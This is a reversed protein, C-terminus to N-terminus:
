KKVVKWYSSKGNVNKYFLFYNGSPGAVNVNKFNRPQDIDFQQIVEGLGNVLTYNGLPLGVNRSRITFGNEIPNPVINVEDEVQDQNYLARDYIKIYRYVIRDGDGSSLGSISDIDSTLVLNELRIEMFEEDKPLAYRKVIFEDYAMDNLYEIFGPFGVAIASALNSRTGYQNYNIDSVQRMAEFELVPEIFGETEVCLNIESLYETNVRFFTGLRKSNTDIRIQQNQDFIGKGRVVFGPEDNVQEVRHSNYLGKGLSILSSDITMESNFDEVYFSQINKVRYFDIEMSNDYSTPDLAYEFSIQARNQGYPLDVFHFEGLFVFAGPYVTRIPNVFQTSTDGNMIITMLFSDQSSIPTCGKYQGAFFISTSDRRNCTPRADNSPFIEVDFNLNDLWTTRVEATNNDITVDWNSSMEVSLPHNGAVNESIGQDFRYVVKDGPLLDEILFYDEQVQPRGDYTYTLEVQTGQPVISDLSLNIIDVEPHLLLDDCFTLNFNGVKIGLDHEKLPHGLGVAYWAEAVARIKEDDDKFNKYAIKMTADRADIYQSTPTLYQTLMEYVLAIANDMGISVVDFDENNETRGQGGEVLLYFWYNLVGSNTHVGGNDFPGERWFRGKYYKPDGKQNPDAMDRFGEGPGPITFDIRHGLQWSFDQNSYTKEIVKGFIDSIAENMAGSEYTYELGASFETVGHTFEHACIDISTFPGYSSSDGPGYFMSFGDWYANNYSQDVPFLYNTIPDGSGTIGNRGFRDMFYDRTKVISWQADLAGNRFAVDSAEFYGDGDEFHTSDLKRTSVIPRADDTELVFNNISNEFRVPVDRDGHYMTPNPLLEYASCVEAGKHNGHCSCIRNVGMIIEGNEANVLVRYRAVPVKSYLDLLWAATLEGSYEPYLKDAWVLEPQQNSNRWQHNPYKNKAIEWARNQTLVINNGVNKDPWLAGSGHDIHGDERHVIHIGGLVRRGEIWQQYKVHNDNEIGNNEVKVFDTRSLGMYDAAYDLYEKEDSFETSPTIWRSREFDSTSSQGVVQISCFLIFSCFYIKLLFGLHVMKM